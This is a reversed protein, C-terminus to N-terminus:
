SCIKFINNRDVYLLSVSYKGLSNFVCNEVLNVHVAFGTKCIVTM